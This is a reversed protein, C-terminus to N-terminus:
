RLQMLRAPYYATLWSLFVYKVTKGIGVAVLVGLASPNGLSYFLLAPTQPLPSGAIVALAFLGNSELWDQALQWSSSAVLQPFHSLVLERGMFHFVEVLVAGGIGSAIGSSLGIALWRRPALLVAPVLVFTFPFAFTSTLIFAILGVVLPYYPHSASFDLWRRTWEPIARKM